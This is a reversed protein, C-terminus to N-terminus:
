KKGKVIEILKRICELQAKKYSEYFEYDYDNNIEEADEINTLVYTYVIENDVEFIDNDIVSNINHKERFWEFADQWLIADVVDYMMSGRPSSKTGKIHVYEIQDITAICKNDFGLLHIESTEKFPVFKEELNEM